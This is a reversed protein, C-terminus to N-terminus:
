HEAGASVPGSHRIDKQHQVSMELELGLVSWLMHLLYPFFSLVRYKM